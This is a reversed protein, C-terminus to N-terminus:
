QLKSIEKSLTKLMKDAAKKIKITIEKAELLNPLDALDYDYFGKLLMVHSENLDKVLKKKLDSPKM